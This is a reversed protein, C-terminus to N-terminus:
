FPLEDVSIGASQAAVRTLHGIIDSGKWRVTRPGIKQPKPFNGDRMWSYLTSIHVGLLATVERANYLRDHRLEPINHVEHPVIFRTNPIRRPARLCPNAPCATGM